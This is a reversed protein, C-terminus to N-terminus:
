KTLYSYLEKPTQVIKDAGDYSKHSGWAVLVGKADFAQGAKIDDSKDGIMYDIQDVFDGVEKVLQYKNKSLEADSGAIYRFKDKLGLRDLALEVIDKRLTTAISLTNKEEYLKKILTEIGPYLADKKMENVVGLYHFKFLDTMMITLERDEKVGTYNSILRKNVKYHADTKMAEELWEPDFQEGLTKSRRIAAEKAVDIRFLTGDLDFCYHM